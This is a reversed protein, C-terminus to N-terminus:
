LFDRRFPEDRPSYRIRASDPLRVATARGKAATLAAAYPSASAGMPLRGALHRLVCQMRLGKDEDVSAGLISMDVHRHHLM